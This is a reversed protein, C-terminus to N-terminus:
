AYDELKTQVLLLLDDLTILSQEANEKTQLLEVKDPCMSILLTLRELHGQIQAKYELLDRLTSVLYKRQKKIQSKSLM